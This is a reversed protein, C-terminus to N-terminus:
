SKSASAHLQHFTSFGSVSSIALYDIFDGMLLVAIGQDYDQGLDKRKLSIFSYNVDVEVTIGLESGSLSFNTVVSGALNSDPVVVTDGLM